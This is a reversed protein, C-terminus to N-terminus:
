GEEHKHERVVCGGLVKDSKIDQLVFSTWTPDKMKGMILHVAM